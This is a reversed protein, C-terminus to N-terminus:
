APRRAERPLKFHNPYNRDMSTIEEVVRFWKLDGACIVIPQEYGTAFLTMDGSRWASMIARHIPNNEEFSVEVVYYKGFEPAVEPSDNDSM